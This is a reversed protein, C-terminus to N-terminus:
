ANTTKSVYILQDVISYDIVKYDILQRSDDLKLKIEQVTNKWLFWLFISERLQAHMSLVASVFLWKVQIIDSM